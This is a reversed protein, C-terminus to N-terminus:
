KIEIIHCLLLSKLYDCSTLIPEQNEVLNTEKTGQESAVRFFGYEGKADSKTIYLLNKNLDDPTSGEETQILNEKEKEGDKRRPAFTFDFMYRQSTRQLRQLSTSHKLSAKAITQRRLSPASTRATALGTQTVNRGVARSVLSCVNM